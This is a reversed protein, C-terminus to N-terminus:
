RTSKWVHGRMAKAAPYLMMHHRYRAIHALLDFLVRLTVCGLLFGIIFGVVLLLENM